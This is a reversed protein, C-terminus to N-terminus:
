PLSCHTSPRRTSSISMVLSLALLKIMLAQVFSSDSRVLLLASCFISLSAFAARDARISRGSSCNMRGYQLMSLRGPLKM